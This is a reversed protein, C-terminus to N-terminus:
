IQRTVRCCHVLRILLEPSSSPPRFCADLWVVLQRIQEPAWPGGASRSLFSRYLFLKGALKTDQLRQWRDCLSLSAHVSLVCNQVHFASSSVSPVRLTSYVFNTGREFNILLCSRVVSINCLLCHRISVTCEQPLQFQHMKISTCGLNWFTPFM